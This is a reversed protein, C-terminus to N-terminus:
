QVTVAQPSEVGFLAPNGAPPRRVLLRLLTQSIFVATLMSVLVGIFLTTAFGTIVTAAFNRGFV